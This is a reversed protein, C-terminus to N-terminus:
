LGLICELQHSRFILNLLIVSVLVYSSYIVVGLFNFGSGELLSYLFTFFVYEEEEM